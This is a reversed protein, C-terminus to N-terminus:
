KSFVPVHWLLKNIPFALYGVACSRQHAHCPYSGNHQIICGTFRLSFLSKRRCTSGQRCKIVVMLISLMISTPPLFTLPFLKLFGSHPKASSDNTEQMHCWLSVKSALVLLLSSGLAPNTRTSWLPLQNTPSCNSETTEWQGPRKELKNSRSLTLKNELNETQAKPM